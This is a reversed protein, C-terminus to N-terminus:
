AKGRREEIMESRQRIEQHDPSWKNLPKGPIEKNRRNLVYSEHHISELTVVCEPSTAVHRADRWNQRANERHHPLSAAVNKGCFAHDNRSPYVGM